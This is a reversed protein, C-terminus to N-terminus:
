RLRHTSEVLKSALVKTQIPSLVFARVKVAMHEHEAIRYTKDASVLTDALHINVGYFADTVVRLM